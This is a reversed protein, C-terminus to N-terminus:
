SNTKVCSTLSLLLAFNADSSVTDNICSLKRCHHTIDVIELTDEECSGHTALFPDAIQKQVLRTDDFDASM